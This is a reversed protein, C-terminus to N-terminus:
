VVVNPVVTVVSMGVGVAEFVEKEDAVATAAECSALEVELEPCDALIIEPLPKTATALKELKPLDDTEHDMEKEQRKKGLIPMAISILEKENM